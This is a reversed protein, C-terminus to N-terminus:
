LTVKSCNKWKEVENEETLYLEVDGLDCYFNDDTFSVWYDDNRRQYGDIVRWQKSKKDWVPKGVLEIIDEWKLM